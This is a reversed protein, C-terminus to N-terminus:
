QWHHKLNKNDKEHTTIAIIGGAIVLIIGIVTYIGPTQNFIIWDFLGTFVVVSFNLPSLKVASVLSYAYQLFFIYAAVFLGSVIVYLWVKLGPETWYLIAFPFFIIVSILSFYFLITIYSDTKSIIGMATYAVALLIGSLLGYLDGTKIFEGSKPDLIFIIGAFGLLMGLWIKKEIRSKLWILTVLPIFIPATNNLLSANVLPIKSISLTFFLFALVGCVGRILHYRIKTSKLDRFNNKASIILVAILSTLFQFFVIWEVRAGSKLELKVLVGVTALMLFSLLTFIVARLIISKDTRKLHLQGM